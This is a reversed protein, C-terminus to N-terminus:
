AAGGTTGARSSWADLDDLPWRVLRKTFRKPHLEGRRAARFLTARDCNIHRCADRTTLLRGMLREDHDHHDHM